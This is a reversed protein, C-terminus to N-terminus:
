EGEGGAILTVKVNVKEGAEVRIRQGKGEMKKVFEEEEYPLDIQDGEYGLLLYEGPPVQTFQFMGNSAPMMMPQQWRGQGIPVLCIISTPSGQTTERVTGGANMGEITGAVEAGDDRLTVEIPAVGGGMGVVLPQKM